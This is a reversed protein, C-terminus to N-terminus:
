KRTASPYLQSCILFGQSIVFLCIIKSQGGAAQPGEALASLRDISQHLEGLQDKIEQTVRSTGKLSDQVEQTTVKLEEISKKVEVDNRYRSLLEEVNREDEATLSDKLFNDIAKQWETKRERSIHGAIRVLAVSIEKWLSLFQADDTIEMNQNVHGYISNRYYKIRALDAELSHDASAPLADWGTVPPTLSCVTRLLRFLLTIDFDASKGYMGPSPYLCDWQPKTLKAAKLQNVTASNKLLKPLDIPRCFMDFIDRLLTTGGTILLRVVRQFNAKGATSRFLGDPDLATAMENTLLQPFQIGRARADLSHTPLQKLLSESQMISASLIESTQRTLM